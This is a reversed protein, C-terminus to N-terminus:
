NTNCQAVCTYWHVNFHVILRMRSENTHQPFNLRMLVVTNQGQLRLFLIKERELSTSSVSMAQKVKESKPLSKQLTTLSEGSLKM